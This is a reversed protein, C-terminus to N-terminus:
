AYDGRFYKLPANGDKYGKRGGLIANFFGSTKGWHSMAKSYFKVRMDYVM